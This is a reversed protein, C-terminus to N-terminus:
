IKKFELLLLKKNNNYIYYSRIYEINYKKIYDIINKIIQDYNNINNYLLIYLKGGKRLLYDSQFFIYKEKKSLEYRNKIKFVFIRDISESKFKQDLWEINIRRFITIDDVLAKESNKEIKYLLNPDKHVCYIKKDVKNYIQFDITYKIDKMKWFIVPINKLLIGEEISFSGDDMLNLINKAEYIRSLYLIKSVLTSKLRNINFINYNRNSLNIRIRESGGLKYINDLTRSYYMLRIIDEEELDLLINIKNNIINIDYNIDKNLINKIEYLIYEELGIDSECIVNYNKEM